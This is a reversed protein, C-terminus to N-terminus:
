FIPTVRTTNASRRIKEFLLMGGIFCLVSTLAVGISIVISILSISLGPEEKEANRVHYEYVTEKHRQGVNGAYSIDEDIRGDKDDDIKNLIEEDIVNDCDNDVGDGNGGYPKSSNVCADYINAIRMGLVYEYATTDSRHFISGHLPLRNSDSIQILGPSSLAIHKSIFYNWYFTMVQQFPIVDTSNIHVFSFSSQKLVISASTTEDGIQDVLFRHNIHFLVMPTIFRFANHLNSSKDKISYFIGCLISANSSISLVDTVQLDLMFTMNDGLVEHKSLEGSSIM